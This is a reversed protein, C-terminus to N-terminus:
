YLVSPLWAGSPDSYLGMSMLTMPQTVRLRNALCWRMLEGNRSPVLFGPGGFADAAAILAKVDDTSEGVAHGFFTIGTAYGTIRGGREVVRVAGQKMAAQLGGGRHAGHVHMCLANCAELDAEAAARVPHGALSRRIPSGQFCSLHERVEFGLKSYLSLSRCHYGAQVLRVSPSSKAAARELVARMLRAGFGHNQSTPGITIPGVGTVADQEHLFNSGVIRGDQEAVVGYVGPSGILAGLLRMAVEVNPFDPVFNHAEAIAAFANYCIHGCEPVDDASVERISVPM